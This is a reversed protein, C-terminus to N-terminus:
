RTWPSTCARMGHRRKMILDFSYLAAASTITVCAGTPRRVSPRAGMAQMSCQCLLEACVYIYIYIYIYVNQIYIYLAGQSRVSTQPQCRLVFSIRTQTLAFASPTAEHRTGREHTRMQIQTRPHMPIRSPSTLTALPWFRVSSQWPVARRQRPDQRSRSARGRASVACSCM